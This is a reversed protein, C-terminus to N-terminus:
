KDEAQKAKLFEETSLGLQTCVATEEDTLAQAGKGSHKEEGMPIIQATNAVFKAFSEPNTRCLDKAWALSAPAIKGAELAANVATEVRANEQTTVVAKLEADVRDFEARPVFQTTDLKSNAAVAATAKDAKAQATTLATEIMGIQDTLSAESNAALTGVRGFLKDLEIKIEAANSATPLNLAERIEEIIEDMGNEETNAQANVVPKLNGLNPYHTLGSGKYALMKNTKPDYTFVPSTYRFERDQLHNIAPPTWEVTGYIGDARAQLSTHVVWGAAPAAAGTKRADLSAHNYDIAFDTKSKQANAIIADADMLWARGDIGEVRGNADQPILQIIQQRSDASVGTPDISCVVTDFEANAASDEVNIAIATDQKRRLMRGIM